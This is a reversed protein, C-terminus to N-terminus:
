QLSIKLSATSYSSFDTIHLSLFLNYNCPTKGKHQFLAPGQFNFINRGEVHLFVPHNKLQGEGLLDEQSGRVGGGGM